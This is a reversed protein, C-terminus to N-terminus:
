VGAAGSPPKKAMERLLELAQEPLPEDIEDFAGEAEEAELDGADLDEPDGLSAAFARVPELEAVAARFRNAMLEALAIMLKAFLVPDDKVLDLLAQRTLRRLRCATAARVDYTRPRGDLFGVEGVVGRVGVRALTVLEGMSEGVVEIEGEEVILLSKSPSDKHLIFDGAAVSAPEMVALLRAHEADELYAVLEGSRREPWWGGAM